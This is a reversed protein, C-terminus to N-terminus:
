TSESLTHALTGAHSLSYGIDLEAVLMWFEDARFRIM